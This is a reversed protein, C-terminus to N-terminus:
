QNGGGKARRRQLIKDVDLPHMDYRDAISDLAEGGRYRACIDKESEDIGLTTGTFRPDHDKGASLEEVLVEWRPVMPVLDLWVARKYLKLRDSSEWPRFALYADLDTTDTIGKAKRSMYQNKLTGIITSSAGPAVKNLRVVWEAEARSLTGIHSFNVYTSYDVHLCETTDSLYDLVIRADESESDTISWAGSTDSLRVDKVIGRITRPDPPHYKPEEKAKEKLHGVIQTPTWGDRAKAEIEDQVQGDIRRRPSVSM